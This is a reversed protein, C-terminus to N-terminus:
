LIDCHIKTETKLQKDFTIESSSLEIGFHVRGAIELILSGNIYSIAWAM